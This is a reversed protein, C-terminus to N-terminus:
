STCGIRSDSSRTPVCSCVTSFSRTPAVRGEGLLHMREGDALLLQLALGRIEDLREPRRAHAAAPALHLEPAHDLEGPHERVAVEV